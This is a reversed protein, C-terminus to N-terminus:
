NKLFLYRIVNEERNFFLNMENINVKEVQCSLGYEWFDAQDHEKILYALEKTGLDTKSDIKFGARTLGTEVTKSLKDRDKKALEPKIVLVLQYKKKDKM